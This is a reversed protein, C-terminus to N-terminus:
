ELDLVVKRLVLNELKVNVLNKETLAGVTERGGRLDVEALRELVNRDCLRRHEGAQGLCRGGEVRDGVRLTGPDALLVHEPAHAIQSEDGLLLMLRRELFRQHDLPFQGLVRHMGFEGGLHRSLNSGLAEGVLDVGAAELHVGRQDLALLFSGVGAQALAHHVVVAAVAVAPGFGVQVGPLQREVVFLCDVLRQLFDGVDAVEHRRQDELGARLGHAGIALAAFDHDEGAVRELEGRLHEVLFGRGVLTDHAARHDAQELVVLAVPLDTLQGFDFGREDRNVRAAAGNPCQDAAEVEVAALEVM